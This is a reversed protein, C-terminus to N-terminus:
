KLSTSLNQKNNQKVTCRVISDQVYEHLFVLLSFVENTVPIFWFSGGLLKFLIM